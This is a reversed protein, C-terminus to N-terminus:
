EAEATQEALGPVMKHWQWLGYGLGSILVMPEGEGRAEYYINIGNAQATPM